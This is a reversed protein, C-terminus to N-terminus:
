RLAALAQPLAWAPYQKRYIREAFVVSLAWKTLGM